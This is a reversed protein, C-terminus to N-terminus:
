LSVGSGSSFETQWVEKLRRLSRLFLVRVAGPSRNLRKAITQFDVSDVVRSLLVQQMEEPLRTLALAMRDATEQQLLRAGPVPGCDEIITCLEAAPTAHVSKQSRSHLIQSTTRVTITRLWGLWEAQSEGHFTQSCRTAQMLSEQILDSEDALLELQGRSISRVIVRIYPRLSDLMAGLAQADGNRINRFSETTSSIPMIEASGTPSKVFTNCVIKLSKSHLSKDGREELVTPHSWRAVRAGAWGTHVSGDTPRRPKVAPQGL